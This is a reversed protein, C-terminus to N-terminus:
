RHARRHQRAKSAAWATGCPHRSPVAAGVSRAAGSPQRPTSRVETRSREPARRYHQSSAAGSFCAESATVAEPHAHVCFSVAIERQTIARRANDGSEQVYMYPVIIRSLRPTTPSPSPSSGRAHIINMLYTQISLSVTHRQSYLTAGARVRPSFHALTASSIYLLTHQTPRGAGIGCPRSVLIGRKSGSGHPRFYPRM